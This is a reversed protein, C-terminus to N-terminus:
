ATINSIVKNVFLNKKIFLPMFTPKENFYIKFTDKINVMVNVIIRRNIIRHKVFVVITVADNFNYIYGTMKTFYDVVYLYDIITRNDILSSATNFLYPYKNNFINKNAKWNIINKFNEFVYIGLINSKTINCKVVDLEFDVM